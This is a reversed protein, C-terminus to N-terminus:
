SCQIVIGGLSHGILYVSDYSAFRGRVESLLASGLLEVSPNSRFISFPFVSTAFLSTPYDWVFVELGKLEPDSRMLESFGGWTNEASGTFGHVFIAVAKAQQLSAANPSFSQASAILIVGFLLKKFGSDCLKSKM